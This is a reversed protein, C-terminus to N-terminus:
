KGKFRKSLEEYVEKAGSINMKAANKANGYYSLAAVYAESASLMMSDNLMSTVQNLVTYYEHLEETSNLDIIYEQKDIFSPTLDPNSEMFEKTKNLFAVTKDAAKPLSQREDSTLATLYPKLTNEIVKIANDIKTKDEAIIKVSIRNEQAM